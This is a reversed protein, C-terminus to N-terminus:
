SRRAGGGGGWKQCATEAEAMQPTLLPQPNRTAGNKVLKLETAQTNNICLLSVVSSFLFFNMLQNVPWRQVFLRNTFKTGNETELECIM